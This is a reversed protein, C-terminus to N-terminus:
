RAEMRVLRPFFEPELDPHANLVLFDHLPAARPPLARTRHPAPTRLGNAARTPPPAPLATTDTTHM